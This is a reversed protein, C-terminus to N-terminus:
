ESRQAKRCAAAAGATSTATLQHHHKYIGYQPSAPLRLLLLRQHSPQESRGCERRREDGCLLQSLLEARPAAGKYM